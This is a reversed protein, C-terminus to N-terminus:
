PWKSGNAVPWTTGPRISNRRRALALAPMLLAVAALWPHFRSRTIMSM